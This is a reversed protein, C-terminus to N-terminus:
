GAPAARELVRYVVDLGNTTAPDRRESSVEHWEDAQYSDLWTDGEFAKDIVTLYLRETLPMADRCLAAGGIIVLEGAATAPAMAVQRGVALAEDLSHAALVSTGPEDGPARGQDRGPDRGPDHGQDPGQHDHARWSMDRTVVINTRGPLARGISEHTKRGMVVPKGLTVSKFYALEGPVHWPLGGEKGILRNRDMAMMMAVRPAGPTGPAREAAGIDSSKRNM